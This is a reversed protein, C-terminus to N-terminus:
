GSLRPVARHWRRDDDPPADRRPVKAYGLAEFWRVSEPGVRHYRGFPDRM